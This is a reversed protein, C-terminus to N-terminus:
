NSSLKKARRYAAWRKRQSAAMKRRTQASFPKRKRRIDHDGDSINELVMVAQQIAALEARLQDIM